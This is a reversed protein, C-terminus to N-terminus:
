MLLHPVSKLLQTPTDENETKKYRTFQGETSQVIVTVLAM